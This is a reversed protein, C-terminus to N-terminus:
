AQRTIIQQLVGGNTGVIWIKGQPVPGQSVDYTLILGAGLQIGSNADPITDEGVLVANPSLNQLFLTSRPRDKPPKMEWPVISSVYVPYNGGSM